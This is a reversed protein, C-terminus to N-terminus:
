VEGERGHGAGCADNGYIWDEYYIGIGDKATIRSM